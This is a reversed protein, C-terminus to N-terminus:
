PSPLCLLSRRQHSEWARLSLSLSRSVALLLSLSLTVDQAEPGDERCHATFPNGPQWEARIVRMTSGTHTPSTPQTYMDTNNTCTYQRLEPRGALGKRHFASHFYSQVCMPETLWHSLCSKPTHHSIISALDVDTVHISHKGLRTSLTLKQSFTRWLTEHFPFIHAVISLEEGVEWLEKRKIM